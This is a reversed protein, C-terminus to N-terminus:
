NTTKVNSGGVNNFTNSTHTVAPIATLSKKIHIADHKIDNFAVDHVNLVTGYWTFLAGVQQSNSAYNINAFAIENLPHPSDFYIGRWAGEIKDIGTFIIPKAVTGIAILSPKSGSAGENVYLRADSGFEITVGPEITLKGGGALVDLRDTVQYPVGHDKWTSDTTIGSSHGVLIISDNTNGTYEGGDISSAYEVKLYMPADSSTITNNKLTLDGGGYSVNVGYTKSHRITSNSMKLLGGSYVIVAGEDGNSNFYGGGAYDIQVYDLENKVNSSRFFLGKWSGATKDQGTLLIPKASTGKAKLSGTVNIGADTGFEINVDPDITLDGSLNMQCTIIYDIHDNRNVLTESQGLTVYHQSCNDIVKTALEQPAPNPTPTPTAPTGGGGGCANFLILGSGLALTQITKTTISKM